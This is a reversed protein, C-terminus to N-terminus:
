FIIEIIPHDTNANSLLYGNESPFIRLNLKNFEPELSLIRFVNLGSTHIHILDHVAMSRLKCHISKSKLLEVVQTYMSKIKWIENQPIEYRKQCDFTFLHINKQILDRIVDLHEKKGITIRVFGKMNLQSERDRLYVGNTELLQLFQKTNEGVYFSIFNGHSDTYFIGFGRLFTKFSEREKIITDVLTQYYDKQNLVALGAVKAIETVHKENYLIRIFDLTEQHAVLYGLRIGALGYAKSFTRTVIVNRYRKTLDICSAEPKFEIYAEDIVFITSPYMKIVREIDTKNLIYGLPNNPHVIYVLSYPMLTKYFDFCIDLDKLESTNFDTPIYFIHDTRRKVMIEFMNYTPAFMFVNTKSTIYRTVIYNLADDSGATLLIQEPAVQNIQSLKDLLNTTNQNFVNSYRSLTHDNQVCEIIDQKVQPHCEFDSENLDLKIADEKVKKFINYSINM